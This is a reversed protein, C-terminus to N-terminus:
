ELMSEALQRISEMQPQDGIPKAEHGIELPPEEPKKKKDAPREEETFYGMEVLVALKTIEEDVDYPQIEFEKGQLGPDKSDQNVIKDIEARKAQLGKTLDSYVFPYKTRFANRNADDDAIDKVTPTGADFQYKEPGKVERQTMRSKKQVLEPEKPFMQFLMAGSSYRRYNADSSSNATCWQSGRGMTQAGAWNFVTFIEYDNNDVVQVKRTGKKVVAEREKKRVKELTEYYHTSLYKGLDRVGNFTQIDKHAPDLAPIKNGNKDLIPEEKERPNGEPDLKPKGNDDLVPVTKTLIRGDKRLAYWDRLNMNMVGIIDEWRHNGNIYNNVIWANNVGDRSYVTGEYGEKEIKDINELFWHAVQEDTQTSFAKYANPPFLAPNFKSDRRVSAALDAVLDKNKLIRASGSTLAVEETLIEIYNM